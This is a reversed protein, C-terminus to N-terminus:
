NLEIPAQGKVFLFAHVEELTYVQFVADDKKYLQTLSKNEELMRQKIDKNDEFVAKAAVRVFGSNVLFTMAINPNGKMQRYMPKSSDTYFYIKDDALVFGTEDFAPKGGIPRVSPKNDAVTALYFTKAELLYDALKM